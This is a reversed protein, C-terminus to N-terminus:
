SVVKNRGEQKARYLKKDTEDILSDVTDITDNMETVGSSITVIGIKYFSHAAIAQRLNEAAVVANDKETEPLLIIFEEGGYRGLSDSKRIRTKIIEAIGKLVTDGAGHGHTDNIQKFHDIDIMILSFTKGYRRYRDFEIELKNFLVGRSFTQTLFDFTAMDEIKKQSIRYYISFLILLILLVNLAAFIMYFSKRQDQLKKDNSVSFIYAVNKRLFNKVPLFTLIVAENDMTIELCFPTGKKTHVTLADKIKKKDAKLIHENLMCENSIAKDLVFRDDISWSIYNSTESKFVKKEVQSKLLVLQTDKYFREKIHSIITKM